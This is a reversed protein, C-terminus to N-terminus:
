VNCCLTPSILQMIVNYYFEYGTHGNEVALHLATKSLYDKACYKVIKHKVLLTVAGLHGNKAAIHLPTHLNSDTISCLKRALQSDLIM